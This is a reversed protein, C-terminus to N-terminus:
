QTKIRITNSSPSKNGAADFARIGYTYTTGRTRGADTFSVTSSNATGALVWNDWNGAGRWVEYRTVGVNDTAADWALGVTTAGVTTTHLNVPATPATTDATTGGSSSNWAKLVRLRDWPLRLGFYDWGLGVGPYPDSVGESHPDEFLFGMNAGGCDVAYAGYRQLARALMKEGASVALADVNVSPDLQIRTGEPIPNAGSYKGDTAAAPYRYTATQCYGTSFVLAHDIVGGRADSLRVLGALSSVMSGTTGPHGDGQYVDTVINGWSTTHFDNRYQWFEYVTGAGLDVVEIKADSGAAPKANSPIPIPRRELDCTGWPETCDMTYRPTSPDAYFVPVGYDYLNAIGPNPGSSLTAVMGASNPDLTVAAGIPTNFASTDAYPRGGTSTLGASAGAPSPILAVLVATCGATVLAVIKSM